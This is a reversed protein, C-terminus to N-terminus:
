VGQIFYGSLTLVCGADAGDSDYFFEVQRDGQIRTIFTIFNGRFPPVGVRVVAQMKRELATGRGRIGFTVKREPGAATRETQVIIQAAMARPPVWPALPTLTWVGAPPTPLDQWLEVFETQFHPFRHWEGDQRVFVNNTDQEMLLTGESAEPKPEYSYVYILRLAM